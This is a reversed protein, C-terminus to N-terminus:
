NWPPLLKKEKNKEGMYVNKLCDAVIAVYLLLLSLVTGNTGPEMQM